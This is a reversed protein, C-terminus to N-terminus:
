DDALDLHGGYKAHIACTGENGVMCPGIPNEPTCRKNFLSCKEPYIKGLMIEACRCGKPIDDGSSVPVEEKLRINSQSFKKAIEFGSSPIVGIGRWKADVVQYADTMAALAKKNGERTVVRSYLNETKSQFRALQQLIALISLMVDAPEFGAVVIPINNKKSIPEYIGYGTIASVHGPAILGDLPVDDQELLVSMAPPVLRHASLIFLNSPIRNNVLEIAVTPATTEFGIAFFVIKNQPNNNALKLVDLFSYVVRVDAGEARATLISGQNSPVRSMDGYTALTYGNKALWISQEIDENPCICVPCGPGAIVEVNPPLLSRIGWHSITYEHTGCVHCIRIKRDTFKGALRHIKVKLEKIIAPDQFSKSM